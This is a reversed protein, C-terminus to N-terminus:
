LPLLLNIRFRLPDGASLTTDMTLFSYTERTCERYIRMFDNYDIDVSYNIVINQLKKRNNIRKILYHTSNLKVDKPVSFYSQTIFVLSINVKKCGIFLEKLIAQIKKNTMSDAIMDDFVILTKRKRSPNYDDILIRIFTMWEIQVSLLHMQIM